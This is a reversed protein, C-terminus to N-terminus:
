TSLISGLLSRIDKAQDITDVLAKLALHAQPALPLAAAEFCGLAKAEFDEALMPNLPHGLPADIRLSFVQGNQMEIDVVAPTVGRGQEREIQEHTYPQIKQGLAQLDARAFAQETFHSLTVNGDVLAAAVTYPISFQAQVVTKPAKRIAEPTCVAEFAQRNVGVRVSAIQMPNIDNQARLRLVAAIAAHNFRCCPYPKYSLEVFEFKEGLGERLQAPDYRNHLYVRFFGDVGEFVNQVARIGTSALQVAILASMASFGPQMRKTLAADRTVQHNGAAQSYSVGLANVTTDEDLRLVRAAALTAAFHGFLPTYMYGSEVIGVKTAVGMRSITELGVAVGCLFDAGTAKGNSLEAAALAAPVVSVGAHLAAGDHTDDYDRAHSMAGNIWAAHHAPLADGFVISHAEPSGGWRTVLTRLEEIGLASSGAVACALTDFVNTKAAEIAAQGINGLTSQTSFRALQRAFDEPSSSQM